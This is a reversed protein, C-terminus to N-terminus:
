LVVVCMCVCVYMCLCVCLCVCVCLCLCMSPSSTSLADLLSLIVTDPLCGSSGIILRLLCDFHLPSAHSFLFASCSRWEITNENLASRCYFALYGFWVEFFDCFHMLKWLLPNWPKLNDKCPCFLCALNSVAEELNIRWSQSPLSMYMMGLTIQNSRILTDNLPPLSLSLFQSWLIIGDQLRSISYRSISTGVVDQLFSISM